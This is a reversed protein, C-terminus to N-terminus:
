CSLLSRKYFQILNYEKAFTCKKRAATKKRLISNKSAKDLLSYIRSLLLSQYTLDLMNIVNKSAHLSLHFSKIIFKLTLRLNRNRLKSKNNKCVTKKNRQAKTKINAM